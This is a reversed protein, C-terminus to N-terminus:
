HTHPNSKKRKPWEEPVYDFGGPHFPHCKMIRILTLWGGKLAGHKSVAEQGYHSCTPYFRCTPPKLPSIVVQYLRIFALFTKKVM